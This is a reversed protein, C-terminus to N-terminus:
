ATAAPRAVNRLEAARPWRRRGATSQARPCALRQLIASLREGAPPEIVHTARDLRSRTMSMSPM